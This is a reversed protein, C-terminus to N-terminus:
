RDPQIEGRVRNAAHTSSGNQEVPTKFIREFIEAQYHDNLGARLRRLAVQAMDKAGHMAYAFNLRAPGIECSIDTWWTYAFVSTSFAIVSILFVKMEKVPIEM